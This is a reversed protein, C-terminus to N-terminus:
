YYLLKFVISRQPNIHHTYPCIMIIFYDIQWAIQPYWSTVRIGLHYIVQWHPYLLTPQGFHSCRYKSPKHIIYVALVYGYTWERKVISIFTGIINFLGHAAPINIHHGIDAIKHLNSFTSLSKSGYQFKNWFKAWKLQCHKLPTCDWHQFNSSSCWSGTCAIRLCACQFICLHFRVSSMWFSSFTLLLKASLTQRTIQTLHLVVLIFQLVRRSWWHNEIWIISEGLILLKEKTFSTWM